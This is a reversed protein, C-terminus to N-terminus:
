ISEIYENGRQDWIQCGYRPHSDFLAYYITRLLPLKVYYRVKSLLCNAKNLKLKLSQFHYKFLLNEDLILGLYKTQCIMNIKQESMRFNMNKTIKKEKSRFLVLEM